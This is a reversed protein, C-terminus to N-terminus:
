AGIALNQLGNEVGEPALARPERNGTRDDVERCREINEERLKDVLFTRM